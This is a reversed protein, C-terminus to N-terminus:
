KYRSMTNAEGTKEEFVAGRGGERSFGDGRLACRFARCLRGSISRERAPRKGSAVASAGSVRPRCAGGSVGPGRGDNRPGGLHYLCRETYPRECAASPARARGMGVRARNFVRRESRRHFVRFWCSVPPPRDGDRAAWHRGAGGAASLGRVPQRQAASPAITGTKTEGRTQRQFVVFCRWCPTTRSTLPIRFTM